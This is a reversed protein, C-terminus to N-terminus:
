VIRAFASPDLIGWGIWAEARIFVQNMRKLDGNGDPDGYPIVEMPIQKAYGWKFANAFDGVIAQDTEYVTSTDGDARTGTFSVTSNVDANVGSLTGPNGGLMFGAFPQNNGVTISGIAEGFSRSLAWGTVDNEGLAAVASKMAALEQGSTLTVKTVGANFDFCNTGIVTSKHKDRPNLGHFSMIDVGRAIKRAYGDMFSSLIDLQKEESAYMFEDTVRAGYEVKIPTIRVPAAAAAGETKQGGEAVINVEDDLSFTFIDNGSFAIPTQGSLKVISSHGKVKSFIGSVVEPAFNTSMTIAM